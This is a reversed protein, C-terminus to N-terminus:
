ITIEGDERLLWEWSNKILGLYKQSLFNCNFNKHPVFLSPLADIYRFNWSQYCFKSAGVVHKWTEYIHVFIKFNNKRSDWCHLLALCPLALCTIPFFFSLASFIWLLLREVHVHVHVYVFEKARWLLPDWALSSCPFTKVLIVHSSIELM